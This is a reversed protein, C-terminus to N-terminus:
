NAILGKVGGGFVAFIGFGELLIFFGYALCFYPVYLIKKVWGGRTHSPLTVIKIVIFLATALNEIWFLFMVLFIKWGWFLVGFIPILNALVLGIVSPTLLGPTDILLSTSIRKISRVWNQALKNHWGTSM